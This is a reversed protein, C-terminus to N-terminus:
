IPDRKMLIHPIGDELYPLGESKFGLKEYFHSLHEQSSLKIQRNPWEKKCHDLCFKMTQAGLNRGRYNIRTIVRGISIFESDKIIRAYTILQEDILGLVHVASQDQNDIDQYVCTQEVVFVESRLKLIEYLQDTSLGGFEYANLKLEM